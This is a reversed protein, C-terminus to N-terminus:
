KNLRKAITCLSITHVPIIKTAYMGYRIDANVMKIGYIRCERSRNNTQSNNSRKRYTSEFMM